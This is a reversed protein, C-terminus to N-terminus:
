QKMVREIAAVQPDRENATETQTTSPSPVQAIAAMPLLALACLALHNLKLM